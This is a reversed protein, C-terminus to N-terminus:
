LFAAQTETKNDAHGEQWEAAKNDFTMYEGRWICEIHGTQGNRQKAVHIEAMGRQEQKVDQARLYYEPRHVFWVNDADNELSGGERLQSMRPIKDGSDEAKRNLQALALVPVDLDRCLAKAGRSIHAIQQERPDRKNAPDILQLYDIVILGLQHKRNQRRAVAAIRSMSNTASDDIHIPRTSLESASAVIKAQDERSLTGNRLRHSNVRATMILMRDVLETSGMELSFMLVHHGDAAVRSAICQALASKGMSPRGALITLEQKRLGGTLADLNTIGTDVGRANEGRMRADLNDLASHLMERIDTAGSMVQSDAISLIRREANALQDAAEEDSDYAAQIIDTSEGILRRLISHALVIQAYYKAHATNPVCGSLRGLEAMGGIVELSNDKKLRAVLLTVDIRKGEDHMSRITEFLIRNPDCYFDAGTLGVEATVDDLVDHNLLLAGLVAEEAAIDYPPQRDHQDRQQRPPAEPTKKAM